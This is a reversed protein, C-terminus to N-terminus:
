EKFMNYKRKFKLRLLSPKKLLFFINKAKNMLYKLSFAITYIFAKLKPLEDVQYDYIKLYKECWFNLTVVEPVTLQNKWKYTFDSIPEYILNEHLRKQRSGIGEFYDLRSKEKERLSNQINMWQLVSNMVNETSDVLDEYRVTFTIDEHKSVKKLKQIWNWSAHLPNNDMVTGDLSYNNKKSNFVARADRVIHLFSVEPFLNRIRDLHLYPSHKIILYEADSDRQTFYEDVIIEILKKETVPIEINAVRRKVMNLDIDFDKFQPEDNLFLVLQDFNDVSLDGSFEFIRTVFESEQSVSIGKYRNLLSSFLTSGSREDYLLFLLKKDMEFHNSIHESTTNISSIFSM